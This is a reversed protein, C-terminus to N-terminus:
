YKYRVSALFGRLPDAGSSGRLPLRLNQVVTYLPDDSLLLMAYMRDKSNEFVLTNANTQVTHVNRVFLDIGRAHTICDKFEEATGPEFQLKLKYPANM